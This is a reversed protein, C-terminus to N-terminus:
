HREFLWVRRLFFQGPALGSRFVLIYDPQNIADQNATGNPLKRLTPPCNENQMIHFTIQM